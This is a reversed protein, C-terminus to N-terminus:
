RITFRVDRRIEAGKVPVLRFTLLYDGGALGALPLDLKYDVSQLTRAVRAAPRLDNRREFVMRDNADVIVTRLTVLVPPNDGGWYVRLFAAARDTPSFQRATTPVLPLLQDFERAPTAHPGPTASLVVGSMSVATDAYDPVTVDTYVSSRKGTGAHHAAVRLNYRGPKVLLTALIDHQRTTSAAGLRLTQHREDLQKRGEADFLRMEIDITEDAPAPTGRGESNLGLAVALSGGLANLSESARTAFPAVALRLPEDAMPLIGSLAVTTPLVRLANKEEHELQKESLSLVLADSPEILVGPRNVRVQIRRIGRLRRM